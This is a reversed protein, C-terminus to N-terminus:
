EGGVEVPQDRIRGVDGHEVLPRPRDEVEGHDAVLGAVVAGAVRERREVSAAELM